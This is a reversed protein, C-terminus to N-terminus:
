RKLFRHSFLKFLSIALLIYVEDFFDKLFEYNGERIPNIPGKLDQLYEEQQSTSGCDTLLGPIGNWSHTHGSYYM